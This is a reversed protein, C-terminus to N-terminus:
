FLNHTNEIESHDFERFLQTAKKKKKFNFFDSSRTRERWSLCSSNRWLSTGENKARYLAVDAFKIAEWFGETDGPFESANVLNADIASNGQFANEGLILVPFFRFSDGLEVLREECRKFGEASLIDYLELEVTVGSALEAAPLQKKTFTDCHSCGIEGYYEAKVVPRSLEQGTVTICTILFLLLLGLHLSGWSSARISPKEIKNAPSTCEM